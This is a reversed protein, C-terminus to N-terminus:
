ARKGLLVRVLILLPWVLVVRLQNYKWSPFWKKAILIGIILYAIIAIWIKRRVERRQLIPPRRKPLSGHHIKSEDIKGFPKVVHPNNRMVTKTIFQLVRAHVKDKQLDKQLEHYAGKFVVKEKIFSGARDFCEESRKNNVLHEHEAMMLLLPYKFKRMNLPIDDFFEMM